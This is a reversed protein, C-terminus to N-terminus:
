KGKKEFHIKQNQIGCSDNSYRINIEVAPSGLTSTIDRCVIITGDKLKSSIGKHNPLETEIGGFGITNFFKHAEAIPDDCNIQRIANCGSKGIEGFYGNENHKYNENVRPLNDRLSHYTPSNGKFHTGM